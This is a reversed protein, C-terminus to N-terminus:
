KRYKKSLEGQKYNGPFILAEGRVGINYRPVIKSRSIGTEKIWQSITLTKGNITTFVSTTKNNSQQETTAWRCNEPCYNGNTDPFRDLSHGVPCKGMDKLFVTFGNYGLWQPCVLIGRGGYNHYQERKKNYCRTKMNSWAKYERSNLTEKPYKRNNDSVIEDRLCGCSKTGGKLISKLNREKVVGCDCTCEFYFGGYKGEQKYLFKGITWRNYKKGFHKLELEKVKYSVVGDTINRRRKFSENRLDEKQSATIGKYFHSHGSAYLNISETIGLGSKVSDMVKVYMAQYNIM